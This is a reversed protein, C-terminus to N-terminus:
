WCRISWSKKEFQKLKNNCKNSKDLDLEDVNSKLYALYVKYAFKSTDVGTTNIFWTKSADTSVLIWQLRYIRPIINIFNIFKESYHTM